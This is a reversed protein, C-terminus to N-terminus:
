ANIEDELHELVWDEMFHDFAEEKIGWVHDDRYFKRRGDIMLMSGDGIYSGVCFYGEYGKVSYETVTELPNLIAITGVDLGNSLMLWNKYGEPLVVCHSNEWESIDTEDLPPFIKHCDIELEEIKDCCARIRTFLEGLPNGNEIQMKRKIEDQESKDPIPEPKEIARKVEETEPKAEESMLKPESQVADRRNLHEILHELHEKQNKLDTGFLRKQIDLDFSVAGLQTVGSFRINVAGFVKQIKLEKIDTLDVVYCTHYKGMLDFEAVLLRNKNTTAVFGKCKDTYLPRRGAFYMQRNGTVSNMDVMCEDDMTYEDSLLVQAFAAKYASTSFPNRTAM